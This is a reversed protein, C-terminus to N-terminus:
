FIDDVEGGDIEVAVIRAAHRDLGGLDRGLCVEEGLRAHANDFLDRPAQFPEIPPASRLLQLRSRLLTKTKTKTTTSSSAGRFWQKELGKEMSKSM